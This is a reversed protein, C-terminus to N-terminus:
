VVASGDAMGIFVVNDRFTYLSSISGGLGIFVFVFVFDLRLGIMVIHLSNLMMLYQYRPCLIMLLYFFGNNLFVLLTLMSDMDILHFPMVELERITEIERLDRFINVNNSTDVFHLRQVLHEM